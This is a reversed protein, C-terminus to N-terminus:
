LDAWAAEEEPSLWDEALSSKALLALATGEANRAKLSRIFHLLAEFGKELLDDLKGVILDKTSM